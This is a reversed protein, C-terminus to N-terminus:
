HLNILCMECYRPLKDPYGICLYKNVNLTNYSHGSFHM